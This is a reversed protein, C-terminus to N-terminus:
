VYEHINRIYEQINRCIKRAYEKHIEQMNEMYTGKPTDQLIM